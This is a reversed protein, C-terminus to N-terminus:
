APGAADDNKVEPDNFGGRKVDVKSGHLNGYKIDRVTGVLQM